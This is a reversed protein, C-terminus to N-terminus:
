AGRDCADRAHRRDDLRAECRDTDALQATALQFARNNGQTLTTRRENAILASAAIGVVAIMAGVAAIRTRGSLRARLRGSRTPSRQPDAGAQPKM